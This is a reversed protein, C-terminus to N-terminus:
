QDPGPRRDDSRGNLTRHHRVVHSNFRAAADLIRYNQGPDSYPPIGDDAVGNKVLVHDHSVPCSDTDFTPADRSTERCMLVAYRHDTLSADDTDSGTIWQRWRGPPAWCRSPATLVCGSSPNAVALDQM